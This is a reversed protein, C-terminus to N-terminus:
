RIALSNAYLAQYAGITKQAIFNKQTRYAKDSLIGKLQIRHNFHNNEGFYIGAAVIPLDSKTLLKVDAWTVIFCLITISCEKIIKLIISTIIKIM